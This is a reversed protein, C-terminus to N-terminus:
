ARISLRPLRSRLGPFWRRTAAAPIGGATINAAAFWSKIAPIVVDQNLIDNCLGNGSASVWAAGQTTSYVNSAGTGFPQQEWILASWLPGSASATVNWSGGLFFYCYLDMGSGPITPNGDQAAALAAALSNAMGPFYWCDAQLAYGSPGGPANPDIAQISGEYAAFSPKGNIQGPAAPGAYADLVTRVNSYQPWFNQAYKLYHRLFDHMSAPPWAGHTANCAGAWTTSSADPSNVYPAMTGAGIPIKAQLGTVGITGLTSSFTIKTSLPGTNTYQGGVTPLVQIGKNYTSFRAQLVNWQHGSLIMSTQYLSQAAPTVPDVIWYENLVTGPAMYGLLNGMTGNILGTLFPAANWDEQGLEWRVKAGTLLHPAMDDAIAQLCADSMHPNGSCWVDTGPWNAAFRAAFGYSCCGAKGVNGNLGPYAGKSMTIQATGAVRQLGTSTIGNSAGFQCVATTSSTPWVVVTANNFNVTATTKVTAGTLPTGQFAPFLTFLTGTTPFPGPGTIQYAQGTSDGTVTIGDYQNFTQSSTFAIMDTTATLGSATSGGYAPTITWFTPGSGGITYSQQSSDGTIAIVLGAVLGSTSSSSTLATSNHTVSVTGSVQVSATGSLTSVTGGTV